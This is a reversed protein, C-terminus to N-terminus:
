RRANRLARCRTEEERAIGEAISRAFERTAGSIRAITGELRM